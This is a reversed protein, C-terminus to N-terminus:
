RRSYRGHHSRNSGPREGRSPFGEPQDQHIQFHGDNIAIFGRTSNAVASEDTGDQSQAGMRGIIVALIAQFHAARIAQPLRDVPALQSCQDALIQRTMDKGM